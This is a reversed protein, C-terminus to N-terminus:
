PNNMHKKPAAFMIGGLDGGSPQVFFFFQM